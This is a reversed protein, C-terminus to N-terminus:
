YLPCFRGPTQYLNYPNEIDERVQNILIMTTRHKSLFPSIKSSFIAMPGAVGCYSKKEMSQEYIAQPVLMPVSDLVILIVNGTKVIDIAIQLVQEATQDQARIIYLNDVDVGIKRAWEEDLTNELDMYVVRRPGDNELQEIQANIKELKKRPEVGTRGELEAAQEQLSEIQEEYEKLAKIQANKTIDLASTTKGGGEGGFFEVAKGLPIGGYTIYNARISSFPIKDVYLRSTGKVVIQEKFQKNIDHILTELNNL